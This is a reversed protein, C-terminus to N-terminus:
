LAKIKRQNRADFCTRKVVASKEFNILPDNDVKKATFRNNRYKSKLTPELQM